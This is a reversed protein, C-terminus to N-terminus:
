ALASDARTLKHSFLEAYDRFSRPPQGTVHAVTDTTRDEAGGAIAEDMEALMEAFAAPVVQRLRTRVEHASLHAHAITRGTAASLIEAVDDYSLSEPGTLILDENRPQSEILTTAAVRAIDDSDIFGVRGTGTATWITDDSRVSDAHLHNDTFNQMFWSPRLVAWEDFIEPLAAHVAGVGPGGGPIASSSLLIVRRVGQQAAHKLFPAMVRYPDPEGIPPVVYMRDVGALARVYTSPDYWDFTASTTGPIATGHRGAAVVTSGGQTLYPVLKGGTNGSAGLVLTSLTSM